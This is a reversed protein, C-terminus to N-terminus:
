VISKKMQITEKFDIPTDCYTKLGIRLLIHYSAFAKLNWTERKCPLLCQSGFFPQHKSNDQHSKM